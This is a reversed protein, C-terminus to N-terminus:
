SRYAVRVHIRRCREWSRADAIENRGIREAADNPPSNFIVPVWLSAAISIRMNPRRGHNSLTYSIRTRPVYLPPVVFRCIDTAFNINDKMEILCSEETKMTNNYRYNNPVM